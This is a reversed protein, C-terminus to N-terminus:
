LFKRNRKFLGKKEQLTTKEEILDFIKKERIEAPGLSLYEDWSYSIVEWNEVLSMMETSLLSKPHVKRTNLLYDREFYIFIAIKRTEISIPILFLNEFPVILTTHYNLRETITNNISLLRLEEKLYNERAFVNYVQESYFFRDRFLVLNDYNYKKMLEKDNRLYFDFYKFATYYKVTLMGNIKDCAALLIDILKTDKNKTYMLHYFILSLQKYTTIMNISKMLHANIKSILENVQKKLDNDLKNESDYDLRRASSAYMLELFDNIEFSDLKNIYNNLIKLIFSDSGAMRGRRMQNLQRLLMGIQETTLDEKNKIMNNINKEVKNVIMDCFEVELKAASEVVLMMQKFNMNPLHDIIIEHIKMFNNSNDEKLGIYDLKKYQSPKCYSLAYATKSVVDEKSDKSKLYKDINSVLTNSLENFFQSDKNFRFGVAINLMDNLSYNTLKNKLIENKLEQRFKLTTYHPSSIHAIYNIKCIEETSYSTLNNLIIQELKSWIQKINLNIDFFLRIILNPIVSYNILDIEAKLKNISHSLKLRNEPTFFEAVEEYTNTEVCSCIKDGSLAFNPDNPYKFNVKSESIVELLEKIISELTDNFLNFPGKFGPAFSIKDLTEKNHEDRNNNKLQTKFSQLANFRGTKEKYSPVYIHRYKEHEIANMYERTSYFKEMETRTEEMHFNEKLPEYEETKDQRKEKIIFNDSIFELGREAVEIAKGQTAQEKFKNKFIEAGIILYDDIHEPNVVFRSSFEPKKNYKEEYEKDTLPQKVTKVKPKNYPDNKLMKSKKPIKWIPAEGKKPHPEMFDEAVNKRQLPESGRSDDEDIETKNIKDVKSFNFTSKFIISNSLLTNNIKIHKSLFKIM